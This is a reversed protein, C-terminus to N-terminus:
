QLTLTMTATYDGVYTGAPIKLSLDPNITFQGNGDPSNFQVVGAIDSTSTFSHTSGLVANATSGSIATLSGNNPIITFYGNSDIPITHVRVNWSDNLQYTGTPFSVRVGRTGVNVPSGGGCPVNTPTSELGTVKYQCTNNDGASTITVIYTGDTAYNYTGDSTIAPPTTASSTAPTGISGFNSTTATLSWGSYTQRNDTITSAGLSTTSVPAPLALTVQGFDVGSPAILSFEGCWPEKFNWGTTNTGKSGTADISTAATSNSVNIYSVSNSGTSNITFKTPPSDSNLTIMNSCDQGTLTLTHTINTQYTHDFTLSKNAITVSFDYFDTGGSHNTIHSPKSDDVFTVLGNNADFSGTNSNNFDGSITLTYNHAPATVSGSTIKFYGTVDASNNGFSWSGNANNFEINNFAATTGTMAGTLTKGTTGSNFLVLGQHALFQGNNTYSGGITIQYNSTTVDLIHNKGSGAATITLDSSVTIPGALDFTYGYGDSATGINLANFTTSGGGGIVPATSGDSSQITTTGGTQTIASYQPVNISGSGTTTSGVTLNNGGMALTNTYSSSAASNINLNNTVAIAANATFIVNASNASGISLNYFASTGTMTNNLSQNTSGNMTVTGGNAYFTGTNTYSGGILFNNSSGPATVAGATITFNNTVTVDNSGFSWGGNVNSFTLKYFASNGTMNGSLTKSTTGSDMTVTGSNANFIDGNYFNGAITFSSATNAKFTTKNTGATINFDGGIDIVAGVASADILATHSGDGATFTGTVTTTAAGKFSDTVSGAGQPEVTLNGSYTLADIQQAATGVYDVTLHALTRNSITYQTTFDNTNTARTVQAIGFGSGPGILTGSGGVTYASGPIFEVTDSITLSANLAITINRNVSFGSTNNVTVNYFDISHSASGSISTGTPSGPTNFTITPTGTYTYPTTAISTNVTWNGYFIHNYGAGAFSAASGITFDGNVTLAGNATKVAAPTGSLILNYYTSSSPVDITQTGNYTYEVTNGTANANLTNIAALGTFNIKLDGTAANTFTGTAGNLAGSVTLTGNNTFVIGANVAMTTTIIYVSGSNLSYNTAITANALTVSAATGGITSGGVKQFTWTEATGTITGTGDVQLKGNSLINVAVAGFTMSGGANITIDGFTKTGTASTVSLIGTVSTPGSVTLQNGNATITGQSITLTGSINTIGTGITATGAGTHTLNYYTTPYMTQVGNNYIVTNPNTSANLTCGVSSAGITLTANSGNTLTNTGALTTSVTLTGNNTTSTNVTLVPITGTGSITLNATTQTTISVTTSTLNANIVINGTTTLVGNSSGTINGGSNITIGGTTINTTRNQTWTATGSINISRASGSNGNMTVTSGAPIIADDNGASTPVHGCDWTAITGWSVAGAASTCTAAEAHM